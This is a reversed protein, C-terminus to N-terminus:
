FHCFHAFLFMFFAFVHGHPTRTHHSKRTRTRFYLRSFHLFPIQLSAFFSCHLFFLFPFVFSDACAAKEQSRVLSTSSNKRVPKHRDRQQSRIQSNAIQKDAEVKTRTCSHVNQALVFRHIVTAQSDEKKGTKKTEREPAVTRSPDSQRGGPRQSESSCPLKAALRGLCRHGCIEM